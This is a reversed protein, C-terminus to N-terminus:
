PGKWQPLGDSVLYLNVTSESKVLRFWERLVSMCVVDPRPRARTLTGRGVDRVSVTLDEASTSSHKCLIRLWARKAKSSFNLDKQNTIADIWKLFIHVDVPGAIQAKPKAAHAVIATEHQQSACEQAFFVASQRSLLEGLCKPQFAAREGFPM